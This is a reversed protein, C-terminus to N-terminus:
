GSGTRRLEVDLGAAAQGARVGPEAVGRTGAHRRANLRLTEPAACLAGGPCFAGITNVLVGPTRCRRRDLRHATAVPPHTTDAVERCVAGPLDGLAHENRDVAVVTLGVTRM